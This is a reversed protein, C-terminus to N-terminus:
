SGSIVQSRNPNDYTKELRIIKVSRDDIRIGDEIYRSQLWPVAINRKRPIMGNRRREHVVDMRPRIVSIRTSNSNQRTTVAALTFLGPHQQLLARLKYEFGQLSISLQRCVVDALQIINAYGSSKRLSNYVDLVIEEFVTLSPVDYNWNGGWILANGTPPCYAQGLPIVWFRFTDFITFNIAGKNGILEEYRQQLWTTFREKEASDQKGPLNKFERHRDLLTLFEFYSRYASLYQNMRIIDAEDWAHIFDTFPKHLHIERKSDISMWAMEKLIRSVDNTRRALHAANSIKGIISEFSRWSLHNNSRSEEVEHCISLLKELTIPDM